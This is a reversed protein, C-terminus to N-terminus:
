LDNPWSEFTLAVVQTGAQAEPELNLGVHWLNLHLNVTIHRPVSAECRNMRCKFNGFIFDIYIMRLNRKIEYGTCFIYAPTEQNTAKMM